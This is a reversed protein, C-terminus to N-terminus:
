STLALAPAVADVTVGPGALTWLMVRNNGSDAIALRDGHLALGYPWCLTDPAIATWQNEGAKAFDPQGLVANASHGAGTTPPDHWIMVRNNATDAVIMRDRDAVIAYPFRLAAAGQAVHPTERATVFDRQGFVLNAPADGAPAPTWGLVRHNGADAILLTDGIAAIAHPWRFSSATPAGGRNEDNHSADPQGLILDPARANDPLGRWGLVRRNGTDAVWLWGDIWSVGYPWYLGHAHAQEAGRQSEGADLDDQGIAYAPLADSSDPVGDWVLVRHHWADAVLLRGDAVCVGTPLHLGGRVGRGAARPGESTFDRQGLVVSAEAGDEEPVGDFLLVRHNGSDVVILRDDDLWVGRPAYCQSRTPQADPLALGGPPTAGFRCLPKV